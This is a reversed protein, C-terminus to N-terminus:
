LPKDEAQDGAGTSQDGAEASVDGVASQLQSVQPENGSYGHNDEKKPVFVSDLAKKVLRLNTSTERIILERRGVHMCQVNGDGLVLGGKSKIGEYFVVDDSVITHFEGQKMRFWPQPLNASLWHLDLLACGLGAVHIEHVGANVDINYWQGDKEQSWVSTYPDGRRLYFGNVAVCQREDMVKMLEALGGPPTVTDDDMMFLRDCGYALAEQCIAHRASDHPSLDLPFITVVGPYAKVAEVITRVHHPFCVSALEEQLPMGIALKM